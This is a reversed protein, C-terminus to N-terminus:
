FNHSFDPAHKKPVGQLKMCLVRQKQAYNWSSFRLIKHPERREGYIPFLVGNELTELMFLDFKREAPSAASATHMSLIGHAGATKM